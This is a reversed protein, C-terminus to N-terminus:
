GLDFGVAALEDLHARVHAELVKQMMARVAINGDVRGSRYAAM